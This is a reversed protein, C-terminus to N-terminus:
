THFCGFFINRYEALVSHRLAFVGECDMSGLLVILSEQRSTLMIIAVVKYANM